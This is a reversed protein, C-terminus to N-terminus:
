GEWLSQERKPGRDSMEGIKGKSGEVIIVDRGQRLLVQSSSPGQVRRSLVGLKIFYYSSAQLSSPVPEVDDFFLLKCIETRM